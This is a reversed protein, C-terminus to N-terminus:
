TPFGNGGLAVVVQRQENVRQNLESSRGQLRSLRMSCEGLEGNVYSLEQMTARLDQEAVARMSEPYSM